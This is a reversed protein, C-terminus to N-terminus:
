VQRASELAAPQEDQERRSIRLWVVFGWLVFLAYIGYLAASPYYKFYILEPVGVLDVLIWALWFDTWGRAMAVTAVMSGVFIWADAWFYFNPAPFGEGIARFLWQCLLVGVAWFGIMLMRQRGTAWRPHVAPAGRDRSGRTRNWLWWGYVSTLIFFIQRGAQGFLVQGGHATFGLGFFVTFLLANGVIGVPWAWVKRRMGGLASLLGFLNGIIERWTIGQGGITLHADYLRDFINM